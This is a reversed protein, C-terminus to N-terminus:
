SVRFVCDWVECLLAGAYGCHVDRLSWHPDLLVLHTVHMCVVVVIGRQMM